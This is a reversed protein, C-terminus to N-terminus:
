LLIARFATSLPTLTDRDWDCTLVVSREAQAALLRRGQYVVVSEADMFSLDHGDRGTRNCVVLPLGTEMSRREWSDEPGHPWRGWAASSVLLQAGQEHLKRALPPTYADACILVGVQLPPVGIPVLRDGPSAWGEAQPVVHIKRHTGLCTGDAAIVFVTNYLRNTHPDREPYSLFVTVQLRAVVQCFHQMWPDPTPLIWDTGIREAFLYGCVWLEPTLIWDAGLEAARHVATELLQRNEAVAGLQPSLHLLAMRWPHPATSAHRM